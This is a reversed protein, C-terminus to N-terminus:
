IKYTVHKQGMLDLPCIFRGILSGIIPCKQITLLSQNFLFYIQEPVKIKHQNFRVDLGRVKKCGDLLM